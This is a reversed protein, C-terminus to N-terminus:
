TSPELPPEISVSLHAFAAAYALREADDPSVLLVLSPGSTPTGPSLTSVPGPELVELVQLGSAVTETHTRSGSYTALVDVRDGPRLAGPPVGAQIPYARLDPPVLAAVPGAGAAAVRTLTLIEGADLGTLVVRGVVGSIEHVAGPPAYREPLQSIKLQSSSLTAGRQVDQAAVVVNVPPGPDPRLAELRRAYGRTLGFSALGCAVALALYVKSATPWRRGSM